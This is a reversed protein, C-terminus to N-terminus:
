QVSQPSTIVNHTHLCEGLVRPDFHDTTNVDDAVEAVTKVCDEGVVDLGQSSLETEVVDDFMGYLEEANEFEGILDSFVDNDDFNNQRASDVESQPESTKDTLDVFQIYEETTSKSASISDEPTSMSAISKEPVSKRALISEINATHQDVLKEIDSLVSFENRYTGNQHGQSETTILLSQLTQLKTQVRSVLEQVSTSM